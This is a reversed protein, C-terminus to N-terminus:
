RPDEPLNDQEDCPFAEKLAWLALQAFHHHRDNPHERLYRMLIDHYQSSTIGSPACIADPFGGKLGSSLGFALGSCGAEMIPSASAGCHALHDNGTSFAEAGLAEAAVIIAIGAGALAGLLMVLLLALWAPPEDLEALDPTDEGTDPRWTM